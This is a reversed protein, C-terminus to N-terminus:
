NRLSAGSPTVDIVTQGGETRFWSNRNQTVMVSQAIRAGAGTDPGVNLPSGFLAADFLWGNAAVVTVSIGAVHQGGSETPNVAWSVDVTGGLPLELSESQTRNAGTASGDAAILVTGDPTAPGACGAAFAMALVAGRM